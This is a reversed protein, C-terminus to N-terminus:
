LHIFDSGCVIICNNGIVERTQPRLLTMIGLTSDYEEFAPVPLTAPCLLPDISM